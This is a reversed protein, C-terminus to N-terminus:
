RSAVNLVLVQHHYGALADVNWRNRLSQNEQLNLSFVLWLAAIPRTREAITTLLASVWQFAGGKCRGCGSASALLDDLNPGGAENM